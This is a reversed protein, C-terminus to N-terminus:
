QASLKETVRWEGHTLSYRSLWRSHSPPMNKETPFSCWSVQALLDGCVEWSSTRHEGKLKPKLMPLLPWFSIEAVGTPELELALQAKLRGSPPRMMSVTSKVSIFGTGAAKAAIEAVDAGALPSRPISSAVDASMVIRCSIARLMVLTMGLLVLLLFFIDM